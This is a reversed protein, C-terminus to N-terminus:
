SATTYAPQKWGETRGFNKARYGKFCTEPNPECSKIRETCIIFRELQGCIVDAISSKDSSGETYWLSESSLFLTLCNNILSSLVSLNREWAKCPTNGINDKLATSSTFIEFHRLNCRWAEISHKEMDNGDNFISFAAWKNSKSIFSKRRNTHFHGAIWSTSRVRSVLGTM